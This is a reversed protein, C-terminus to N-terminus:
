KSFDLLFACLQGEPCFLFCLALSLSGQVQRAHSFSIEEELLLGALLLRSSISLSQRDDSMSLPPSMTMGDMM